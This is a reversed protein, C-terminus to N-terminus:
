EDAPLPRMRLLGLEPDSEVVDAAAGLATTVRVFRGSLRDHAGSALALVLQAAREPPIGETAAIGRWDPYHALFAEPFDTMDTQVLGPSIVFVSVGTGELEGAVSEFLRQLGAKAVSYGSAFPNGELGIGSGLAIVRGSGRAVMAPLAAALVLQPGRLNVELDRWWDDVDGHWIPGAASFRGANAVVLDIPGLESETRRVADAVAVPDTADGPLALAAAGAAVAGDLASATRGTIAVTWGAASLTAAITRGIGRGGGTVLAVGTM